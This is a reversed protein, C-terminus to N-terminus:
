FFSMMSAGTNLVDGAIGWRASNKAARANQRASAARRRFNFIEQIGKNREAMIDKESYLASQGYSLLAMGSGGLGNESQQGAIQALNQRQMQRMINENYATNYATLDANYDAIRAEEEYQKAAAKRAKYNGVGKMIGSLAAMALPIAIPLAM